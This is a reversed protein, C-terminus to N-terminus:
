GTELLELFQRSREHLGANFALNMMRATKEADEINTFTNQPNLYWAYYGIGDGPGEVGYLYPADDKSTHCARYPGINDIMARSM